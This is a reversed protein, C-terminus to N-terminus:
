NFKFIQTFTELMNGELRAHLLSVVQKSWENKLTIAVYIADGVIGIHSYEFLNGLANEVYPPYVLRVLCEIARVGWEFNKSTHIIKYLFCELLASNHVHVQSLFHKNIIKRIIWEEVDNHILFVERLYNMALRRMVSCEVGEITLFDSKNKFSVDSSTNSM